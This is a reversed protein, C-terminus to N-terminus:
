VVIQLSRFCLCLLCVPLFCLFNLLLQIQQFLLRLFLSLIFICPFFPPIVVVIIMIIPMIAIPARSIKNKFVGAGSGSFGSVFMVFM